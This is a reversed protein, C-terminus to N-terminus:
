EKMAAIVKLVGDKQLRTYGSIALTRSMNSELKQAHAYTRSLERLLREVDPNRSELPRIEQGALINTRRSM